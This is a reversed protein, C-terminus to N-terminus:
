KPFISLLSLSYLPLSFFHTPFILFPSLVYLSRVRPFSSPTIYPSSPLPPPSHAGEGRNKWLFHLLVGQDGGPVDCLYVQVDDLLEAAVDHKLVALPDSSAAPGPPKLAGPSAQTSRPLSFPAESAPPAVAALLVGSWLLTSPIVGTGM